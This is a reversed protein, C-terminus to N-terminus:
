AVFKSFFIATAETLSLELACSIKDAEELTFKGSNIKSSFTSQNIGIIEAIEGNTKGKEVIKGRLM